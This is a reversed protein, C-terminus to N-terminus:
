WGAAVKRRQRSSGCRNRRCPPRAEVGGAPLLLPHRTAMTPGRSPAGRIANSNRTRSPAVLLLFPTAIAPRATPPRQVRREMLKRTKQVANCCGSTPTHAHPISHPVRTNQQQRARRRESKGNRAGRGEGLRRNPGRRKAQRKQKQKMAEGVANPKTLHACGCRQCRYRRQNGTSQRGVYTKYRGGLAGHWHGRQCPPDTQGRHEIGADWQRAWRKARRETGGGGRQLGGLCEGTGAGVCQM